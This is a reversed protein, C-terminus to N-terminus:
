TKSRRRVATTINRKEETLEVPLSPSPSLKGSEAKPKRKRNRKRKKKEKPPANTASLLASAASLDSSIATGPTPKNDTPPKNIAASTAVPGTEQAASQNNQNQALAIIHQSAEENFRVFTQEKDDITIKVTGMMLASAGGQELMGAQNFQERISDPKVGFGQLGEPYYAYILGDDHLMYHKNELREGRGIGRALVALYNGAKNRTRVYSNAVGVRSELNDGVFLNITPREVPAVPTTAHNHPTISQKDDSGIPEPLIVSSHTVDM